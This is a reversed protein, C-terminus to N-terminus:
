YTNELYIERFNRRKFLYYFTKRYWENYYKKKYKDSFQGNKAVKSSQLLVRLSLGNAIYYKRHKNYIYEYYSDHSKNKDRLDTLSNKEARKRYYYLVEPIKYVGEYKQLIRIWLEWDEAYHLNVDFMGVEEFVASRIMAYIPISNDVLLNEMQYEEIYWIGRGCEFLEAASYVLAINPMKRFVNFCESIYDKHLRDDGDLFVLFQGKSHTYGNNRAASPGMNHQRVLKANPIDKIYSAIKSASKDTSGDDVVIVEINEYSQQLASEIAEVIVRENNYTPIIISILPPTKQFDEQQYDLINELWNTFGFRAKLDNPTKKYPLALFDEVEGLNDETLLFYNNPHYFDQELILENTTIVKKGYKLGEFIRFSLGRHEDICFDLIVESSRIAATQEEFPIITHLCNFNDKAYQPINDEDYGNYILDFQIPKIFSKAYKHFQVMLDMRSKHFSSIYHIRNPQAVTETASPEEPYDFFFNPAHHLHFKAYEKVDSPDFAYFRDFLYIKNFIMPDRGLGDYHFSVFKDSKKRAELLFKTTFFDARIVLTVDYHDQEKLISMQENHLFATKLKQKYSYDVLFVKRLFNTLRQFLSIYHFQYGRNHIVTVNYGQFELNKKILKYLEFDPPAILLFNAQAQKNRMALFLIIPSLHTEKGLFNVFGKKATAAKMRYPSGSCQM